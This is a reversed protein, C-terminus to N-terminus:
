VSNMIFPRVVEESIPKNLFSVGLSEAEAQIHPQINATLLAGQNVQGRIKQWLELGNMGPMNYDLIAMDMEGNANLCEIAEIGDAAEVIETDPRVDEVIARLMLRSVKSDDVILLRM